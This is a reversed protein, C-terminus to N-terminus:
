SPRPPRPSILVDGNGRQKPIVARTIKKAPDGAPAVSDAIQEFLEGVVRYVAAAKQVSVAALHEGDPRLNAVLEPTAADSELPLVLHRRLVPRNAIAEL